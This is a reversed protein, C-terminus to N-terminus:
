FKQKGDIGFDFDSVNKLNNSQIKARQVHANQM